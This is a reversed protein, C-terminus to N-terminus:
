QLSAGTRRPAARPRSESPPLPPPTAVLETPPRIGDVGAAGTAPRLEDDGVADSDLADAAADLRTQLQANPAPEVGHGGSTVDPRPSVGLAQELAEREAQLASVQEPSMTARPTALSVDAQPVFGSQDITVNGVRKKQGQCVCCVVFLIAICSGLSYVALSVLSLPCSSIRASM